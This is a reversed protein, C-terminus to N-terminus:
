EDNLMQKLHEDVIDRIHQDRQKRAKDRQTKIYKVINLANIIKNVWPYITAQIILLIVFIIATSFLSTSM